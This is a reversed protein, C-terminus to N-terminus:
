LPYFPEDSEFSPPGSAREPEPRSMLVYASTFGACAAIILTTTILLLGTRRITRIEDRMERLATILENDM